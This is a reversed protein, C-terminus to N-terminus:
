LIRMSKSFHKYARWKGINSTGATRACWPSTQQCYPPLFSPSFQALFAYTNPRIHDNIIWSQLWLEYIESPLISIFIIGCYLPSRDSERLTFPMEMCNFISGRSHKWFTTRKSASEITSICQTSHPPPTITNFMIRKQMKKFWFIGINRHIYPPDVFM